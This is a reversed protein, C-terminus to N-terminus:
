DQEDWRTEASSDPVDSGTPAAPTSSSNQASASASTDIVDIEVFDYGASTTGDIDTMELIAEFDEATLDNRSEPATKDPAMERRVTELYDSVYDDLDRFSGGFDVLATDWNRLIYELVSRRSEGVFARAILLGEGTIESLLFCKMVAM